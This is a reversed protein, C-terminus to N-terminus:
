NAVFMPPLKAVADLEDITRLTRLLKDCRADGLVAAVQSRFKDDVQDSTLPAGPSGRANIVLEESRRGARSGVVVRAPLRGEYGSTLEADEKVSVRDAFERVAPDTLAEATYERPTNGGKLLTLALSYSTSFQMGLIDHPSTGGAHLDYGKPYGVVVSEIDDAALCNETVIKRFGDIAAAIIGVCCYPKFYATEFMWQKGLDQTLRQAKYESSYIRLLGRAGELIGEPGTIGARALHASQIGASAAIATYIRKVSGGGQDYQMLGGSFGGAIGMANRIGEADLGLLRAVGAAVGFPGCTTSYQPGGRKAMEPSLAWGIHGRVEYAAVFATLFDRGSIHDREGVSLLSPILEAGAHGHFKPNGDDYEFSHGFTSNIFAATAVPLRDGYRVVTAEAAGGACRCSERVQRAWPLDSCGIEVGIQDVLIDIARARIASPIQGHTLSAAFEALQRTEDAM